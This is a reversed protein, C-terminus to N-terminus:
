RYLTSEILGTTVADNFPVNSSTGVRVELDAVNVLLFFPNGITNLKIEMSNYNRAGGVDVDVDRDIQTFYGHGTQLSVQGLDFPYIKFGGLGIEYQYLRFLDIDNGLNVFPEAVQPTLPVFFFKWGSVGKKFREAVFGIKQVNLRFYRSMEGKNTYEYAIMPTIEGTNNDVVAQTPDLTINNTVNGYSDFEVLLLQRRM